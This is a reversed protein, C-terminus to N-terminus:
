DEEIEIIKLGDLTNKLREIARNRAKAGFNDCHELYSIEHLLLIATNLDSQFANRPVDLDFCIRMKYTKGKEEM